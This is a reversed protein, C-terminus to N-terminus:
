DPGRFPLIRASQRPGPGRGQRALMQRITPQIEGILRMQIAKHDKFYYIIECPVPGSLSTPGFAPRWALRILRGGEGNHHAYGGHSDVFIVEQRDFVAQYQMSRIPIFVCDGQSRKLLLQLGNHVAAPITTRERAVIEDPRFFTERMLYGAM